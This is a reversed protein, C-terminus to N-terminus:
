YLQCVTSDTIPRPQVNMVSTEHHAKAWDTIQEELMAMNKCRVYGQTTLLYIVYMSWTRCTSRDSGPPPATIAVSNVINYVNQNQSPDAYGIRMLGVLFISKMVGGTSQFDQIWHNQGMNKLHYKYGGHTTLHHYIGWHFGEAPDPDRFFLIAYIAGIKLRGDIIPPRFSLM